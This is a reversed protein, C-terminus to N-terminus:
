SAVDLSSTSVVSSAESLSAESVSEVEVLCGRSRSRERKPAMVETENLQLRLAMCM